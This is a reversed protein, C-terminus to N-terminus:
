LALAVVLGLVRHLYRGREIGGFLRLRFYRGRQVGLGLGLLAPMPEASAALGDFLHLRLRLRLRLVAETREAECLLRLDKLARHLYRSREIQRFLRLRFYRGRQVGLGLGLGLLAPM